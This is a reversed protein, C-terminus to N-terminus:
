RSAYRDVITLLADPEVPKRLYAAAKMREAKRRGESDASVVVIPIDRISPDGLQAARFAIGDMVPMMLDLLIVRACDSGERLLALAQHGDAATEVAYGSARLLAAFAERVDEDDEVVLVIQRGPM